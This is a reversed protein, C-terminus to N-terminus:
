KRTDPEYFDRALQRVCEDRAAALVKRLRAAQSLEGTALRYEKGNGVRCHGDSWLVRGDAPRSLRGRADLRLGLQGPEGSVPEFGWNEVWIELALGRAARAKLDAPQKAVPRPLARSDTRLNKLKEKKGILRAFGQAILAAPDAAAARRVEAPAPTKTKGAAKVAPLPSEYHLVHIAPEDDLRQRDTDSLRVAQSCGALWAGALLWTAAALACHTRTLYQFSM